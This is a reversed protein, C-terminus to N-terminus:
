FVCDLTTVYKSVRKWLNKDCIDHGSFANKGKSIELRESVAYIEHGKIDRFSIHLDCADWKKESVVSVDWSFTVLMEHRAIEKITCTVTPGAESPTIWAFLLLLFITIWAKKM